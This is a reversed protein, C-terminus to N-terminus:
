GLAETTKGSKEKGKYAKKEGVGKDGPLWGIKRGLGLPQM